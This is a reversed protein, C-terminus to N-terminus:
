GNATFAVQTRPYASLDDCSDVDHKHFLRAGLGTDSEVLVDLDVEVGSALVVEAVAADPSSDASQWSRGTSPTKQM